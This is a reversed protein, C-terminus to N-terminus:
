ATRLQEPDFRRRVTRRICEAKVEIAGREAMGATSDGELHQRGTEPQFLGCEGTEAQQHVEKIDAADLGVLRCADFTHQGAHALAEGIVVLQQSSRRAHEVAQQGAEIFSCGRWSDRWAALLLLM